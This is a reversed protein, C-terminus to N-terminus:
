QMREVVSLKSGKDFALFSEARQNMPQGGGYTQMLQTIAGRIKLRASRWDGGTGNTRYIYGFYVNGEETSLLGALTIAPNVTGTKAIVAGDTLDNKYMDVTSREGPASRGAVPLVSHLGQGQEKLDQRLAQIVRIVARCTAENYIKAGDVLKSDGSGNVFRLTQGGIGLRNQIFRHYADVGGLSEFINNAAYNNSNRNMEKLIDLVTASQYRYSLEFQSERVNESDVQEISDVKMKITAPLLMNHMRRAKAKTSEYGGSLQNFAQRLEHKVRNASPEHNDFHGTAVSGTTNVMFKLNEDFTLEGIKTIGYSNLQGVLFQLAQKGFYPDRTGKLHVDFTGNANQRALIVTQFRGLIGMKAVAWHATMIKSVSAIPYRDDVNVGDMKSGSADTLLCSARLSAAQSSPILLATNLLVTTLSVSLTGLFAASMRKM